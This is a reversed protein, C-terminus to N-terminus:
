PAEIAFLKSGSWAAEIPVTQDPDVKKAEISLNM